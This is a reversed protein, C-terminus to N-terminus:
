PKRSWLPVLETVVSDDAEGCHPCLGQVGDWCETCATKECHPCRVLVVDNNCCKCIQCEDDM